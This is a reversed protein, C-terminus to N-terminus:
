SLCVLLLIEAISHSILVKLAYSSLKRVPLKAPVNPNMGLGRPPLGSVRAITLLLKVPMCVGNQDFTLSLCSTKGSEFFQRLFAMSKFASRMMEM